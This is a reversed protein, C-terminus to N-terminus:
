SLYRDLSEGLVEEVVPVLKRRVEMEVAEDDDELLEAILPVLQPLHSVWEEGIKDYLGHLTRAVWMKENSSCESRMHLALGDNIQKHLESSSASALAVIARVLLPGTISDAVPLLDMLCASIKDFREQSQWFDDHDHQFSLVLSNLVARKLASNSEGGAQLQQQKEADLISCSTDLLYGYYSTVISKLSGFLKVVFKYFVTLRANRVNEDESSPTAAWEAMRVFYPRFTKDNLKMVAGLASSIARAEVRNTDNNDLNQRERVSFLELIIDVLQAASATVVKRSAKAVAGDFFECLLSYSDSSVTGTFTKNSNLGVVAQRLSSILTAADISSECISTVLRSRLEYDTTSMFCLELTSPLSSGMFSSIRKVFGAILAFVAMQENTNSMDSRVRSFVVPVIRGFYGIIRAGLVRCLTAIYGVASIFVTSDTSQIGTAGVAIDLRATLREPDMSSGFQSAVAELDDLALSPATCSSDKVFDELVDMLLSAAEVVKTNTTSEDAFKSQILVLAQMQIEAPGSKLLQKVVDVFHSVSLMGLFTSTLRTLAYSSSSNAFARASLLRQVIQACESSVNEASAMKGRLDTSMSQDIFAYVDGNNPQVQAPTSERSSDASNTTAAAAFREVNVDLYKQIALLQDEIPFTPLILQSFQVYAKSDAAKHKQRAETYKDGLLLLFKHLCESVGICRILTGFMRVRRHRPIHPFAAIFSLLVFETEDDKGVLAPVVSSITQQIVHASFEDDQRVTNAGMFTFIPMVSHLVIEPVLSALASVLLLLRNQVQPSSAARICSVIIDVRMKGSDIQPVKKATSQAQVRKVIDVLGTMCSALLQETYEIPLNSETGLALLEGLVAFLHGLINSLTAIANKENEDIAFSESQVTKDLLELIMTVRRLHKEATSLLGQAHVRNSSSRRRRKAVTSKDQVSTLQISDLVADFQPLSIPLETLVPLSDYPLSEDLAIDCLTKLLDLQAESKLRPWLKTIGLGAKEGLDTCESKMFKELMPVAHRDSAALNVLATEYADVDSKTNSTILIAKQQEVYDAFLDELYGYMHKWGKVLLMLKTRASILPLSLIHSAFFHSIQENSSKKSLGLLVSYIHAADLYCEELRGCVTTVLKSVESSGLWKVDESLKGSGYIVDMAWFEPKKMPYRSSITNLATGAARRVRESSDALGIFLLPLLAQYDVKPNRACISAAHEFARVRTVLPANGSWVRGLFTLGNSDNLKLTELANRENAIVNYAATLSQAESTIQPDTVLFSITKSANSPLEPESISAPTSDDEMSMADLSSSSAGGLTVDDNSEDSWSFKLGTQLALELTEIDMGEHSLAVDMVKKSMKCKEFFQTLQDRVGLNSTTSQKAQQLSLKTLEVMYIDAIQVNSLIDVAAVFQSRTFLTVCVAAVFADCKYQSALAVIQDNFNKIKTLESWEDDGFSEVRDEPKILQSICALGSSIGKVNWNLIISQIAARRVDQDLSFQSSLVALVMYAAIQADIDSRYSILRSVSPLFADIVAEDSAGFDRMSVMTWIAMSSWLALLEHFGRGQSVTQITYECILERSAPESAFARVMLNRPPNSFAKKANALFALRPPLTVVDLFRLFVPQNYYPLAALLLTESNLIHANFRRVLWEVTKLAPELNLRPAVLSMFNAIAHDLHDNEEQTQVERDLRISSEAFLSNEFVQFQPDISILDELGELAVAHITEYDQAAAVKPEFILSVSHLQKRKQRDVVTLNNASLAALQSALSSM